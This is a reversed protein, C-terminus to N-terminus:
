FSSQKELHFYIESKHLSLRAKNLQPFTYGKSTLQILSKCKSTLNRDINGVRSKDNLKLLKFYCIPQTTWRVFSWDATWPESGIEWQM